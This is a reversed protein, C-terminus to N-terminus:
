SKPQRGPILALRSKRLDKSSQSIFEVPEAARAEEIDREVPRVNATRRYVVRVPRRHTENQTM